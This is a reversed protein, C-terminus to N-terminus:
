EATLNSAAVLVTSYLFFQVDRERCQSLFVVENPGDKFNIVVIVLQVDSSRFRTYDRSEYM